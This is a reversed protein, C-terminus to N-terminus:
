RANKAVEIASAPVGDSGSVWALYFAGLAQGRAANETEIRDAAEHRTPDNPHLTSRWERLREVISM